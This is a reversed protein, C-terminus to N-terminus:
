FWEQPLKDMLDIVTCRAKNLNNVANEISSNIQKYISKISVNYSTKVRKRYIEPYVGVESTHRFEDTEDEWKDNNGCTYKVLYQRLHRAGTVHYPKTIEINISGWGMGSLVRFTVHEDYEINFCDKHFVLIEIDPWGHAERWLLGYQSSPNPSRMANIQHFALTAGLGYESTEVYVEGSVTNTLQLLLVTDEDDVLNHKKVLAAYRDNTDFMSKKWLEIKALEESKMKAIEEVMTADAKVIDADSKANMYALDHQIALESKMKAIGEVLTADAKAIDGDSKAGMYALDHQIALESMMDKKMDTM